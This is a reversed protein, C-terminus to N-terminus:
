RDSYFSLLPCCSTSLVFLADLPSRKVGSKSAYVLQLDNQSPNFNVRDTAYSKFSSITIQDTLSHITEEITERSSPLTQQLRLFRVSLSKLPADYESLYFTVSNQSPLKSCFETSLIFKSTREFRLTIAREKRIATCLYPM